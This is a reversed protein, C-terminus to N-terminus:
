HRRKYAIIGVIVGILAVIGAGILIYLLTTNAPIEEEQLIEGCETCKIVKLGTKTLTPKQIIEWGGETHPLKDVIMTEVAEGCVTCYRVNRGEEACTPEKEVVWDGAKHGLAPLVSEITDGCNKCVKTETGTETCTPEKTVSSEYDHPKMAIVETYSDGCSCKYTIEGAETCSPEKTVTATYSHTHTEQKQTEKTSNLTETNNTNYKEGLTNMANQMQEVANPADMDVGYVELYYRKKEDHTIIGNGDYDTVAYTDVSNMAMIATGIFLTASLVIIINRYKKM